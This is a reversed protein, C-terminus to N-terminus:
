CKQLSEESLAWDNIIWELADGGRNIDDIILINKNNIPM